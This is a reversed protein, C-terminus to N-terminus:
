HLLFEVRHNLSVAHQDTLPMSPFSAQVHNLHLRHPEIGQELLWNSLSTCRALSLRESLTQDSIEGSFHSVQVMSQPHEKLYEALRILHAQTVHDDPLVNSAKEFPIALSLLLLDGPEFDPLGMSNSASERAHDLELWHWSPATGEAQTSGHQSICLIVQEEPLGEASLAMCLQKTNLKSQLYFLTMNEKRMSSNEVPSSSQELRIVLCDEQTADGGSWDQAIKRALQEFSAREGNLSSIAQNPSKATILGSDSREPAASLDGGFWHVYLGMCAASWILMAVIGPLLNRM